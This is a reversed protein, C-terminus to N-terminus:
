KNMESLPYHSVQTKNTFVTLPRDGLRKKKNITCRKDMTKNTPMFNCFINTERM